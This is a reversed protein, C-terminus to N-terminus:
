RMELFFFDTRLTAKLVGGFFTKVYSSATLKGKSLM